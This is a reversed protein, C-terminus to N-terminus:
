ALVVSQHSLSFTGTEFGNCVIERGKLLTKTNNMIDTKEKIM